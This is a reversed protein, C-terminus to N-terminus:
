DPAVGNAELWRVAALEIQATSELIKVERWLRM